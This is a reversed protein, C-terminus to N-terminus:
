KWSAVGDEWKNHTLRALTGDVLSVAWIDGYPQPNFIPNLPEEDNIGGRESTFILWKGDPSFRPHTDAGPSTTIRNPKGIPTGSRPISLTYIEYNGDRTSVFAIIYSGDAAVVPSFAPMTDLAGDTGGHDTLKTVNKGNADMWYIDRQSRFVIHSGDKPFDPSFDPWANNNLSHGTLNETLSIAGSGDLKMKTIGVKSMASFGARTPAPGSFTDGLAFAIWKGDNSWTVGWAEKGNSSYVTKFYTGDLASTILDRGPPLAKVSSVLGNEYTTLPNFSSTFNRFARLNLTRDVVKVEAASGAVLFPAKAQANSDSATEVTMGITAQLPVCITTDGGSAIKYGKSAECGKVDTDNRITGHCVMRGKKDFAPAWYNQKSSPDSEPNESGDPKVSFIQWRNDKTYASYAVRGDATLAPSLARAGNKSIQKADSGDANVRWIHPEGRDKLSGSDPDPNWNDVACYYIKSDSSWVPSGEWSAATPMRNGLQRQNTGDANMVYLRSGRCGVSKLTDGRNITKRDSSFVISAGDPSFAPNFNGVADAPVVNPKTLNKAQDLSQTKDPAFQITLIDAAGNQDSVFALTKGDSSFVPADEMFPSDILLRAPSGQELDLVYLDPNGRRESCFVVWRGDPDPSFVANYDLAPDITLRHSRIGSNEFIYIDWNTPRLVSYVVIDAGAAVTGTLLITNAAAIALLVVITLQRM